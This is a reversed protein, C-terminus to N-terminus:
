HAAGVAEEAASEGKAGLLLVLPLSLVFLVAVYFFIDSYSLLAAQGNVIRDILELANRHGLVADGGHATFGSALMQMRDVAPQRYATIHNVLVARHVAERRALMTTISAIGISSGLQRTLSFFGSGAAIDKKGLPGLTALSLPMFMLVGGIGRFILPWFLQGVGTEPNLSMLSFGTAVTLLAGACIVVRLSVYHALKGYFVMTMASAIAGPVLIYGSQLATFHLYSQVFVPVAFMIGYLGMGLIASYISGGIMSPYRLV